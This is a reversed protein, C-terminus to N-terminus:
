NNVIGLNQAKQEDFQQQAAIQAEYDKMQQNYRPMSLRNGDYDQAVELTTYAKQVPQFLNAQKGKKFNLIEPINVVATSEGAERNLSPDVPNSVSYNADRSITGQIYTPKDVARVKKTGPYYYSGREIVKNPNWQTAETFATDNYQLNALQEPTMTSLQQNRDAEYADVDYQFDSLNSSKAKFKNTSPTINTSYTGKPDRQLNPSSNYGPRGIKHKLKM